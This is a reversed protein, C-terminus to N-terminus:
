ITFVVGLTGFVMWFLGVILLFVLFTKEGFSIRDWELILYSYCPFLVVIFFSFTSGIFGMVTHFSPILVATGLVILAALSRSIIWNRPRVRFISEIANNVPFLILPFKTLPNLTITWLAIQTLVQNYGKGPLNQSIVPLISDGFMLYGIAGIVLYTLAVFGYAIKLSLTFKQPKKMQRYISPFAAHANLGAFLLGSALGVDQWSKPMYSTPAPYLLSGPILSSSLGDVFVIMILSILCFVGVSSLWSIKSMSNLMTLPTMVAVAGCKLWISYSSIEPFISIVSESFLILNAVAVLFLDMTFVVM